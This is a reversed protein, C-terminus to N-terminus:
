WAQSHPVRGNAVERHPSFLHRMEVKRWPLDHSSAQRSANLNHSVLCTPLICSTVNLVDMRKRMGSCEVGKFPPPVGYRNAAGM